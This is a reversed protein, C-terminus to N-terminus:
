DLGSTTLRSKSIGSSFPLLARCREIFTPVVPCEYYVQRNLAMLVQVAQLQGNKEFLFCRQHVLEDTLYDIAHGLKELAHGAQPTILRRAPLVPRISPTAPPVAPTFGTPKYAEM